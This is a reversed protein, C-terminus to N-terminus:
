IQTAKRHQSIQHRVSKLNGQRPTNTNEIAKNPYPERTSNNTNGTPKLDIKENCREHAAYAKLKTTQAVPFMMQHQRLSRQTENQTGEIIEETQLSM